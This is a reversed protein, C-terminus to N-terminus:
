EACVERIMEGDYTGHFHLKAYLKGEKRFVKVCSSVIVVYMISEEKPNIKATM